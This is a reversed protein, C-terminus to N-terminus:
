AESRGEREAVSLFVDRDVRVGRKELAGSVTGYALGPTNNERSLHGLLIRKTGYEALLVSSIAATRNSLHGREGRIRAKLYLPYPGEELMRLDHNSELLVTECGLLNRILARNMYGMDTAVGVENEGDTLRYGVPAAADHPIAFPTIRLEGVSFAEGPSVENVAALKHADPFGGFTGDTAYVPLGWKRSAVGVGAIHDVHEHTVLIGRLRSIEDEKLYESLRKGSVGCDVLLADQGNDVLVANGSSGSFLTTLHLM